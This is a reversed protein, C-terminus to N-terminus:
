YKPDDDEPVREARGIEVEPTEASLACDTV